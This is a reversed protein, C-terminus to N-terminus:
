EELRRTTDAPPPDADAPSTPSPPEGPDPPASRAPPAPSRTAGVVPPMLRTPDGERPMTVRVTPEAAVPPPVQASPQPAVAPWGTEATPGDFIATPPPSYRPEATGPQYTPQPYMPQGPYPRGYVTPGYSYTGKPPAPPFMAHYVRYVAMAAMALFGLWVSRWLLGDFTARVSFLSGAFAGLFTIVGFVASVAYSGLAALLIIRSKPLVPAVHTALLVALLPLGIAFPGAFSDFAAVSRAGFQSGWGTVVFLLDSLGIFLFVANGILLAAAVLPRMPETVQRAPLM